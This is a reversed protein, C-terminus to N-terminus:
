LWSFYAMVDAEVLPFKPQMNNGSRDVCSIKGERSLWRAYQQMELAYNDRTHKNICKYAARAAANMDDDSCSWLSDESSSPESDWGALDDDKEAHRRKSM